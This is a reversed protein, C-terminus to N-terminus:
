SPLLSRLLARGQPWKGLGSEANIHGAAGLSVFRSRWQSACRRAYEISAYEDNTSAVVISPFRLPTSPVPSFGHADQPFAPSSPDPVAVLLAGHVTLATSAAWHAVLLCGLSHAVIVVNPGATSVASELAAVWDACVPHHWDRQMVREFASDTQQWHTQWHAPGSNGFGPVILVRATM